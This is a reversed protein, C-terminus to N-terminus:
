RGADAVTMRGADRDLTLYSDNGPGDIADYDDMLDELALYTAFSEM